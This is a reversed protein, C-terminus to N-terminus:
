KKSTTKNSKKDFDPQLILIESRVEMGHYTGRWMPLWMLDGYKELLARMKTSGADELNEISRCKNLGRRHLSEYKVIEAPKLTATSGKVDISFLVTTAFCRVKPYKKRSKMLKKLDNELATKISKDGGSLKKPTIVDTHAWVKGEILLLPDGLSDVVALDHRKWERLAHQSPDLERHLYLALANRIELESKGTAFLYAMHDADILGASHAMLGRIGDLFIADRKFSFQGSIMVTEKENGLYGLRNLNHCKEIM